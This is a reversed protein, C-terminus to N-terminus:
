IDVGRRRLADFVIFQVQLPTVDSVNIILDFDASLDLDHESIHSIIRDWDRDSQPGYLAEYRLRQTNPDVVLRVTLEGIPLTCIAELENQYRVDDVVLHTFGEALAEEFAQKVWYNDGYLTRMATGHAQYLPRLFVKAEPSEEGDWISAGEHTVGKWADEYACLYANHWDQYGLWEWDEEPVKMLEACHRKLWNDDFAPPVALISDRVQNKLARAFSVHHFLPSAAIVAERLTTKGTAVGGSIGLVFIPQAM